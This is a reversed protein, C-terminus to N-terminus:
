NDDGVVCNGGQQKARYTLAQGRKSCAHWTDGPRVSTVGLSFALEGTSLPGFAREAVGARVQEALATARAADMRALVVFEDGAHHARYVEAGGSARTLTRKLFAGLSTFATDVGAHMYKTNLDKLGDVDMWIACREDQPGEAVFRDGEVLLARENKLQTRGDVFALRYQELSIAAIKCLVDLFLQADEGFVFDEADSHVCVVALLRNDLASHIPACLLATIAYDPHPIYYGDEEGGPYAVPRGLQACRGAIGVGYRYEALAGFDVREGRLRRIHGRVLEEEPVNIFVSGSRALAQENLMLQLLVDWITEPDSHGLEAICVRVYGLWRNLRENEDVLLRVQENIRTVLDTVEGVPKAKRPSV